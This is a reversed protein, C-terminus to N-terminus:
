DIREPFPSTDGVQIKGCVFMDKDDSSLSGLEYDLYLNFNFRFMPKRRKGQKKHM